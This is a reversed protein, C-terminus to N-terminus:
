RLVTDEQFVAKNWDPEDTLRSMLDLIALERVILRPEQEWVRHPGNSTSFAVGFYATDNTEYEVPLNVFGPVRLTGNGGNYLPAASGEDM